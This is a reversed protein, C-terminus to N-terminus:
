NINLGCYLLRLTVTDLIQTNKKYIEEDRVRFDLATSLIREFHFIHFYMNVMLACNYKKWVSEHLLNSCLQFQVVNGKSTHQAMQFDELNKQVQTNNLNQYGFSMAQTTLVRACIQNLIQIQCAQFFFFFFLNSFFIM